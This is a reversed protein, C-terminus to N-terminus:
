RKGSAGLSEKRVETKWPKRQQEELHYSICHRVGTHTQMQAWREGAAESTLCNYFASSHGAGLTCPLTQQKRGAREGGQGLHARLGCDQSSSHPCCPKLEEKELWLFALEGM